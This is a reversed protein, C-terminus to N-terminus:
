LMKLKQEIADVQDLAVICLPSYDGNAGSLAGPLDTIDSRLVSLSYVISTLLEQRGSYSRVPAPSCVLPTLVGPQRDEFFKSKANGM